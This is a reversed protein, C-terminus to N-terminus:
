PLPTDIPVIMCLAEVTALIDAALQTQGDFYRETGNQFVIRFDDRDPDDPL